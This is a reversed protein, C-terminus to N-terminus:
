KSQCRPSVMVSSVDLKLMPLRLVVLMFLLSLELYEAGHQTPTSLFIIAMLVIGRGINLCRIPM